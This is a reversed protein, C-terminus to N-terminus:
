PFSLPKQDDHQAQRICLRKRVGEFIFIVSVKSGSQLIKLNRPMTRIGSLAAAQMM